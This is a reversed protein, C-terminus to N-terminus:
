AAPSPIPPPPIPLTEKAPSVDSNSQQFIFVPRWARLQDRTELLTVDIEDAGSEKLRQRNQEISSALGWRGIVIRAKPLRARLRKCLYRAHALGGPPTAAICIMPPDKSAVLEVLESSLMETSLVEMEWRAPNLLRRLMELALVDQPNRSACGIIRIMMAPPGAAPPAHDIAAANEVANAAALKDAKDAKEAEDDHRQEMEDMIEEIAQLIYKEDAETLEGREFDRRAQILTPLLLTDYFKAPFEKAEGLALDAAEDQDRALLRQYFSVDTDLGPEDGLLVDLFAL